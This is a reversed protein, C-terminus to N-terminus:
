LDEGERIRRAQLQQRMIDMDADSTTFPQVPKREEEIICALMAAERVESPTLQAQGLLARLFEVVHHFVPDNLYRARVDM